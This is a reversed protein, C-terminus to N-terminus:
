RPNCGWGLGVDVEAGSRVAAKYGPERRRVGMANM